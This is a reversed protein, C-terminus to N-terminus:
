FIFGLIAIVTWLGYDLKSKILDLLILVNSEASRKVHSLTKIINIIKTTRTKTKIIYPEM